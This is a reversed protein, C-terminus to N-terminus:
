GGYLGGLADRMQACFASELRTDPEWYLNSGDGARGPKSAGAGETLRNCNLFLRDAMFEGHLM